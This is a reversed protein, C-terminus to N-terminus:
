DLSTKMKYWSVWLGTETDAVFHFRVPGLKWLSVLPETELKKDSSNM